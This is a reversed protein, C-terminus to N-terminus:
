TGDPGIKSPLISAVIEFLPFNKQVVSYVTPTPLPSSIPQMTATVASTRVDLIPAEIHLEGGPLYHLTLRGELRTDGKGDGISLSATSRRGDGSRPTNVADRM